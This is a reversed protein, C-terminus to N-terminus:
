AGICKWLQLFGRCTFVCLCLSPPASLQSPLLPRVVQPAPQDFICIVFIYFYLAVCIFHWPISICPLMFVIDFPYFYLAIYICIDFLFFYLAVCICSESLYLYLSLSVFLFTFFLLFVALVTHICIGNVICYLCTVTSGELVCIYFKLGIM